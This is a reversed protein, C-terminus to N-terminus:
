RLKTRILITACALLLIIWFAKSSNIFFKDWWTKYHIRKEVTRTEKSFYQAIRIAREIHAKYLTDNQIITHHLKGSQIWADSRALSTHLHSPRTKVQVQGETVFVELTISDHVTDGPLYVYIVTDKIITNTITETKGWDCGYKYNALECKKIRRQEIRQQKTTTCSALLLLLIFITTRM